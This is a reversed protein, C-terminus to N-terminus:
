KERSGYWGDETSDHWKSANGNQDVARLSFVIKGYPLNTFRFSTPPRFNAFDSSTKGANVINSDEHIYRLEFCVVKESNAKIDKWDHSWSINCNDEKFYEVKYDPVPQEDEKDKDEESNFFIRMELPTDEGGASVTAVPVTTDESGLVGLGDKVSQVKKIAWEGPFIKSNAKRYFLMYEVMEKKQITCLMLENIFGDSGETENLFQVAEDPSQKREGHWNGKETTSEDRQYFVYYDEYYDRWVACIKAAKVPYQYAGKGNLFNVVDEPNQSRKWGWNEGAVKEKAKQVFVLFDVQGKRWVATIKADNGAYKGNGNSRLFNMVEDPNQFTKCEWSEAQSNGPFALALGLILSISIVINVKKM